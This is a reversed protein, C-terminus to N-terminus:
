LDLLSIGCLKVLFFFVLFLETMFTGYKNGKFEGKCLADDNKRTQNPFATKQFAPGPGRNGTNPPQAPPDSGRDRGLWAKLILEAWELMVGASRGLLSAAM